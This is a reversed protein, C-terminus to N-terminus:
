RFLGLRRAVATTTTTTTTSTTTTTTTTPPPPLAYIPYNSAQRYGFRLTNSTGDLKASGVVVMSSFTAVGNTTNLSLLSSRAYITGSSTGGSTGNLLIPASNNRDYFISMGQYTGSTPPSIALNGSTGSLDIGAGSGSCPAPYSSCAFYLMVGNGIFSGSTSDLKLRNKIVYIGPKFTLSGGTANFDISSYLGPSISCSYGTTDVAATAGSAGYTFTGDTCSNSGAAPSTIGLPAPVASLPDSIPAVGTTPSPSIVGSTSSWSSGGVVSIAPATVNGSTVDGVFAMPNTSNVYIGSSLSGSGANNVTLSGSTADFRFSPGTSDLICLVCPPMVQVPTPTTTTTTTTPGPASTTTTTASPTASGISASAARTVLLSRIGFLGAFSTKVQAAPILVRLQTPSAASDSSICTNNNALDPYYVGPGLAATANADWCNSWSSTQLGTNFKSYTKVRDVTTTWNRSIMLEQAGALSASDAAAQAQRSIQRANSLDVVIASVGVMIVM